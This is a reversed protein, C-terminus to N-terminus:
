KDKKSKQVATKKFASVRLHVLEDPVKIFASNISKLLRITISFLEAPFFDSKGNILEYGGVLVKNLVPSCLFIVKRFFGNGGL